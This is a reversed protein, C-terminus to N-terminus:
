PIAQYSLKGNVRLVGMKMRTAEDVLSYFIISNERIIQSLLIEHFRSTEQFVQALISVLKYDVSLSIKIMSLIIVNSDGVVVLSTIHHELAIRLGQLLTYAEAQNNFSINLQQAFSSTTKGRPDTLFFLMM